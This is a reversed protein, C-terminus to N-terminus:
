DVKKKPPPSLIGGGSGGFGTDKLLGHVFLFWNLVVARPFKGKLICVCTPLNILLGHRLRCLLIQPYSFHQLLRHCLNTVHSPFSQFSFNSERSKARRVEVTERHGLHAFWGGVRCGLVLGVVLITLGVSLHCAFYADSLGVKKVSCNIVVDYVM